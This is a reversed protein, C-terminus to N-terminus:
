RSSSKQRRLMEKVKLRLTEPMAKAFAGRAASVARLSQGKIHTVVKTALDPPSIWPSFGASSFSFEDYKRAPNFNTWHWPRKLGMFHLYLVEQATHGRGKIFTRGFKSYMKHRDGMVGATRGMMRGTANVTLQSERLSQAMGWHIDPRAAVLATMGEEDACTGHFASLRAKWDPIQKALANVEPCNRYLAFHGMVMHEDAFFVDTGALRERAVVPSLDGFVLDIDCYGWYDYGAVLEPFMLAYFPKLDCLKYAHRLTLEPDIYSQVRTEMEALSMPVHRVNAPLAGTKSTTVLFLDVNPNNEISRLFLPMWVPLAGSYPVILCTRMPAINETRM